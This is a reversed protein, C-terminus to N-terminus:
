ESFREVTRVGKIGRLKEFITELHNTDRVYVSLIGEFMSDFADINVSRINTNIVAIVASTIENLMGARDDGTIKIAALFDGTAKQSWAVDVLRPKLQEEISRVNHCGARHVKIGSGITVIGIIEDGPVPNCCRAYSFLVRANPM